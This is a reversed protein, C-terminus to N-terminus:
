LIERRSLSPRPIILNPLLLQFSHIPEAKLFISSFAFFLLTSDSLVVSLAADSIPFDTSFPCPFDAPRSPCFSLAGTRFSKFVTESRHKQFLSPHAATIRSYILIFEPPVATFFAAGFASTQRKPNKRQSSFTQSSFPPLAGNKM